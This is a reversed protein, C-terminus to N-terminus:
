NYNGLDSGDDFTWKQVPNFHLGDSGSTVWGAEDSRITLYFRNGFRTLSPEGLGRAGEASLETGREVYHLTKGDFQTRVVTVKYAADEPAKFYIPFLIGGNELDYRQASGAGANKFQPVDPRELNRHPSWAGAVPDYVSYGTHRPRVKMVKNEEYWVTHGTGLLKGSKAHWAPWFDCI